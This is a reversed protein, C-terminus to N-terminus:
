GKYGYLCLEEQRKQVNEWLVCGKIWKNEETYKYIVKHHHITELFTQPLTQHKDLIFTQMHDHFTSTIMRRDHLVEREYTLLSAIPIITTIAIITISFAILTEIFTFGKNNLLIVGEKELHFCLIM